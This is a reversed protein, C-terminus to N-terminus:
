EAEQLIERVKAPTVRGYVTDNMVLVPALACSGFCAVTELTYKRDPTTQGDEINLLKTIEDLLRPAGKVYCGTGRCVKIVNRGVPVFKFQAYFTAVGFITSEPVGTFRAVQSMAQAPLFGFEQQVRQLIPILESQDGTFGALVKKVREESLTEANKDVVAQEQAELM